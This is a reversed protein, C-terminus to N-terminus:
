VDHLAGAYLVCGCPGACGVHGWVAGCVGFSAGGFSFPTLHVTVCGVDVSGNGSDVVGVLAVGEM